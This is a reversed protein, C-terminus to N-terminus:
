FEDSVEKTQEQKEILEIFEEDEEDELDPQENEEQERLKKADEACEEWSSTGVAIHYATVMFTQSIFMAMWIGSLGYNFKFAFLYCLPM